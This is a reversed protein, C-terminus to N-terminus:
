AEKAPHRPGQGSHPDLITQYETGTDIAREMADHVELMLRKTRYGGHGAVDKRKVIPFEEKIYEM